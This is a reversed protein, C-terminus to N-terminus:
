DNQRIFFASKQRFHRNKFLITRSKRHYFFCSGLAAGEPEQSLNNNIPLAEQKTAQLM